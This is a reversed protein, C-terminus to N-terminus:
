ENGRVELHDVVSRASNLSIGREGSPGGCVIAVRIRMGGGSGPTVSASSGSRSDLTSSIASRAPPSSALASTRNYAPAASFSSVSNGDHCHPQTHRLANTSTMITARLNCANSTLLLRTSRM